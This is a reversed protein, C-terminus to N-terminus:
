RKFFFDISLKFQEKYHNIYENFSYHYPVLSSMIYNKCNNEEPVSPHTTSLIKLLSFAVKVAPLLVPYFRQTEPNSSQELTYLQKHSVAENRYTRIDRMSKDFEEEVVEACDLLIKKLEKAQMERPLEALYKLKESSLLIPFHDLLRHLHIDWNRKKKSSSEDSSDFLIWIKSCIQDFPDNALTAYPIKRIEPTKSWEEVNNSRQEWIEKLVCYSAYSRLIEDLSSIQTKLM